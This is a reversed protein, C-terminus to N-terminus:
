GWLTRVYPTRQMYLISKFYGQAYVSTFLEAGRADQYASRKKLTIKLLM